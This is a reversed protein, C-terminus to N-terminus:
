RLVTALTAADRGPLVPLGARLEDYPASLLASLARNAHVVEGDVTLIALSEACAHFGDISLRDRDTEIGSM